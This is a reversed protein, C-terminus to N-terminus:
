ILIAAKIIHKYLLYRLVTKIGYRFAFIQQYFSTPAIIKTNILQRTFIILLLKIILEM